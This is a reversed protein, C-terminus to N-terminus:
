FFTSLVAKHYYLTNSSLHPWARHNYYRFNGFPSFVMSKLLNWSSQFSKMYKRSLDNWHSIYRKSGSLSFESHCGSSQGLMVFYNNKWFTGFPSLNHIPRHHFIKIKSEGSDKGCKNIEEALNKALIWSLPLSLWFHLVRWLLPTIKKRNVLSKDKFGKINETFNSIIYQFIGM